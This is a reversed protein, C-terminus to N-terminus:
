VACKVYKYFYYKAKGVKELFYSDMNELTASVFEINDKNPADCGYKAVNFIKVLEKADVNKFTDLKNIYEFITESDNKKDYGLISLYILFKNFYFLTVSNSDKELVKIERQVKLYNKLLLACICILLMILVTLIIKNLLFNSESENKTKSQNTNENNINNQTPPTITPTNREIEDEFPIPTETPENNPFEPLVPAINEAVQNEWGEPTPDFSMWGFGEFYVEAWAHANSNRVEYVGYANTESPMSFGEVYRAPLGVARCMVVFASAFYTCYGQQSDFLFYDVFDQGEPVSGPTMTYKFEKLYKELILAKEYDTYGYIMVDEYKSADSTLAHALEYVREPLNEPLATFQERIKNARPILDESLVNHLTRAEPPMNDYEQMQYGSGEGLIEVFDRTQLFTGSSHWPRPIHSLGGVGMYSTYFDMFEVTYSSDKRLAKEVSYDGVENKQLTNGLVRIDTIDCVYSPVFISSTSSTSKLTIIAERKALNDLELPVLSINEDRRIYTDTEPIYIIQWSLFNMFYEFTRELVNPNYLVKEFEYDNYGGLSNEWSYGTYLDKKAGALLVPRDIEVEMVIADNTKLDGGLKGGEASFGTSNYAFYRPKFIWELSENAKSFPADIVEGIKGDKVSKSPTPIFFSVGLVLLVIPLVYISFLKKDEGTNKEHLSKLFLIILSIGFALISPEFKFFRSSMFIGFFIISIFFILFFKAMKFAFIYTIVSLPIIIVYAIIEVYVDQYNTSNNNIYAFLENLIKFTERFFKEIEPNTQYDFAVLIAFIALLSISLIFTYKNKFVFYLIGMVWLIKLFAEAYPIDFKICSFVASSIGWVFLCCVLFYFIEDIAFLFKKLFKNGNMKEM